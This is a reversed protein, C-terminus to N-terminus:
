LSYGFSTVIGYDSSSLADPPPDSDTSAYLRLEWFFDEVLELKFRTDFDSRVRESGDLSPMVSYRVSIDRKPTNYTFFLYEIGFLGSLYEETQNTDTTRESVAMLGGVLSFLTRNSQILYRGGGGGAMARLKIGLEDNQQLGGFATSFWRKKLFYRYSAMAEQTRTTDVDRQDTIISNANLRVRYKRTRYTLDLDGTVQGVDSSKTYTIGLSIDLDLRSIFSDKIPEIGIISDRDLSQVGSATQVRITQPDESVVLPGFFRQGSVTELLLRQESTAAVVESWEVQVTGMSDTSVRLRGRELSKIECTIVDGNELTVKDTKAAYATSFSFLALLSALAICLIRTSNRGATSPDTM